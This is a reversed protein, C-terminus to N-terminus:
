QPTTLFRYVALTAQALTNERAAEDQPSLKLFVSLLIHGQDGPLILGGADSTCLNLKDRTGCTGPIHWAQVDAPLLAKLRHPGQSAEMLWALLLEAPKPKLLVRRHVLTLLATYAEPTTSDRPDAAFAQPGQKTLDALAEKATRDIRIGDKVLRELTSKLPQQGGSLSLLAEGASADNEAVAYRLLQGITLVAGDPYRDRIPSHGPLYTGPEVRVWKRFPLLGAEMLALTRIAVPLHYLQALPFRDTARWGIRLNKEPYIAALGLQGGSAQELRSLEAALARTAPSQVEADQGFAAAALLLLPALRMM